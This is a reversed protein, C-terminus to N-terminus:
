SKKNEDEEGKGKQLNESLEDLFPITNKMIRALQPSLKFRKSNADISAKLNGDKQRMSAAKWDVLMEILDVLDMGDVGNRFHQPHHKSVAYHHDLAVRMQKLFGKYEPGMYTAAKLKPTFEEFIEFEPYELKTKDHEQARKTLEMIIGMLLVNVNAMHKITEEKTDM